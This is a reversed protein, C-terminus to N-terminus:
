RLFAGRRRVAFSGIRCTSAHAGGSDLADTNAEEVTLLAETAEEGAAAAAHADDIFDSTASWM